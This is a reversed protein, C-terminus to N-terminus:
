VLEVLVKALIGLKLLSCNGSIDWEDSSLIKLRHRGKNTPCSWKAVAWSPEKHGCLDMSMLFTCTGSYGPTGIKITRWVKSHMKTKGRLSGYESTTIDSNNENCNNFHFSSSNQYTPLLPKQTPYDEFFMTDIFHISFFPSKSESYAMEESQNITQSIKKM